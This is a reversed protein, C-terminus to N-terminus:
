ETQVEANIQMSPARCHLSHKPASNDLNSVREKREDPWLPGEHAVGAEYGQTKQNGIWLHGDYVLALLKNVVMTVQTSRGFHTVNLM